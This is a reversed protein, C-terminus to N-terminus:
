FNPMLTITVADQFETPDCRSCDHTQKATIYPRTNKSPQVMFVSGELDCGDVILQRQNQGTYNVPAFGPAIIVRKAKWRTNHETIRAKGGGVKRQTLKQACSSQM